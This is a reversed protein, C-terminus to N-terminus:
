GALGVPVLDFDLGIWRLLVGSRSWVPLRLPTSVIEGTPSLERIAPFSGVGSISDANVTLDPALTCRAESWRPM